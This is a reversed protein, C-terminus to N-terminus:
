FNRLTLLYSLTFFNYEDFNKFYKVGSYVSICYFIYDLYSNSEVKANLKLKIGFLLSQLFAKVYIGQIM